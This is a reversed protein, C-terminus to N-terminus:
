HLPLTITFTAGAPSSDVSIVGGHNKVITHSVSLGLGTGDTKKTTFFPDYIQPLVDDAIGPGNDAITIVVNGDEAKATVQVEPPRATEATCAAQSANVILNILLQTIQTQSGSLRVPHPTNRIVTVDELTAASFRLASDIADELQFEKHVGETEPFAFTRLDTIIAGIRKLGDDIDGITEAVELGPQLTAEQLDDRLSDLAMGTFNLPNNIEHLLGASLSGLANMKESQVLQQQASKLENLAENLATNKRLLERQLRSTELLNELRGNLETASFPKNIFDDVGAKLAAMKAGEDARATLMLIKMNQLAPDRRIASAVQLGDVEPMMFDLVVADPTQRRIEDLAQQGDEATTVAFKKQLVWVLYKRMGSEDDVVLVRARPQNSLATAPQPAATGDTPPEAWTQSEDGPAPLDFLPLSSAEDLRDAAVAEESSLDFKLEFSSGAGAQSSVGISGGHQEVLEKALALGLGLGRQPRSVDDIQYFREFVHPLHEGAIGAGTDHVGIVAVDPAEATEGPQCQLTVTVDGGRPTYRIGNTLLNLIVKELRRQDAVIVPSGDEPIAQPKYSVNVEERRGLEKVSDVLGALFSDVDLPQLFLRMRGEELRIIELIEDILLMLRRCNARVLTLSDGADQPLPPDRHLLDEVPSIMLTLPTGLEHSVSAFFGTKLKDLETLQENKGALEHRLEFDQIRRQNDFHCVLLGVGSTAILFFMHEVFGPLDVGSFGAPLLCAVTFCGLVAVCFVGAEVVTYLLMTCTVTIMLTLGAYYPSRAGETLYIMWCIMLMPLLVLLSSLPRVLKKGMGTLLVLLVPLLALDCVIRATLLSGFAQPYIFYDLVAGGPVLLLAVLSGITAHMHRRSHDDARYAAAVAPAPQNFQM